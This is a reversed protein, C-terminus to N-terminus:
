TLAGLQMELAYRCNLNERSDQERSLDHQQMTPRLIQVFNPAHDGRTAAGASIRPAAGLIEACVSIVLIKVLFAYIYPTIVPLFPLPM